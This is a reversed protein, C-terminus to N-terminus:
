RDHQVHRLYDRATPYTQLARDLRDEDPYYDDDGACCGADQIVGKRAAMAWLAALLQSRAEARTV